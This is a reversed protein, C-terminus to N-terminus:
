EAINRRSCSEVMHHHSRSFTRHPSSYNHSIGSSWPPGVTAMELKSCSSKLHRHYSSFRCCMRHCRGLCSISYFPFPAMRAALPTPSNSSSVPLASSAERYSSVVNTKTRIVTASLAKLISIKLVTTTDQSNPLLKTNFRLCLLSAPLYKYSATLCCHLLLLQDCQFIKALM